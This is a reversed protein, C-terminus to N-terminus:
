KHIIKDLMEEVLNMDEKYDMHYIRGSIHTQCGYFTAIELREIDLRPPFFFYPQSQM